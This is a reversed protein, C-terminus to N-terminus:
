HFKPYLSIVADLSEQDPALVWLIEQASKFICSFDQNINWCSGSGPHELVAGRFREFAYAGIAEHFEDSDEPTDWLWHASYNGKSPACAHYPAHLGRPRYLNNTLVFVSQYYLKQIQEDDTPPEPVGAFLREWRERAAVEEGAAIADHGAEAQAHQHHLAVDVAPRHDCGAQGQLLVSLHEGYRAADEGDLAATGVGQDLLAGLEDLSHLVHQLLQVQRHHGLLYLHFFGYRGSIRLSRQQTM